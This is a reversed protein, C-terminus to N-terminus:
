MYEMGGMGAQQDMAALKDMESMEKPIEHILAETTLVLGSISASNELASLTVQASDVVGAEFLDGYEGTAANYGYGFGKELCKSLVIQGEIGCNKAIQCVPASLSNFVIDAGRREDEDDIANVVEDRFRLCYALTSGGGPLIGTKLASKVANLADEYRLKKDKLETETAAGVKIRAIGGGLAAVREEAKEKDFTSDTNEAEIKIQEIRKTMAEDQKGDTVITTEEKGIVMRECTGLMEPTVTELSVGVEQAVYTAGTAIAIDQLLDKRRTGFGPAKMACVDLVGRMKNVVLASLAEGVVDEAIIVLKEKSKVMGELLPILDNVNEIKQDTVLIRPDMLECLQREQDNVFYPSVYGRDITLGETFEVEDNLTQSEELTTSGTDGVKEFAKAIVAGMFANGSTAITAINLVEENGKVPVALETCKEILVNTAATIGRRLAVPNSGSSVAKMGQNVLEQTMLTTTTTGDGAKADSKGAVEQILKAGINMAPDELEIDRAITVGDNVIEPSGYARELVVNRGKPGLTVKVADAVANIGAVLQARSEDGFLVNKAERAVPTRAPAANHVFATASAVCLAARLM